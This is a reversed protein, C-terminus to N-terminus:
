INAIKGDHLLNGADCHVKRRNIFPCRKRSDKIQYLIYNGICVVKTTTIGHHWILHSSNAIPHIRQKGYELIHTM